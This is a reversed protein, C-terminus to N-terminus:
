RKAKIKKLYTAASDIFLLYKVQNPTRVASIIFEKKSHPTTM